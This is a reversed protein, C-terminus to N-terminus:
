FLTLDKPRYMTELLVREMNSNEIEAFISSVQAGDIVEYTVGRLRCLRELPPNDPMLFSGSRYNLLWEVNVGQELTWYAVGYAKLHDKQTLDMPILLSQADVPTRSLLTLLTLLLVYAIPKKVM